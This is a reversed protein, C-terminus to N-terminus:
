VVPVALEIERGAAGSPDTVILVARRMIQGASQLRRVAGLAVQDADQVRLWQPLGPSSLVPGEGEIVLTWAPM